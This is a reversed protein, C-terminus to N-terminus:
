FPLNNAQQSFTVLQANRKGAMTAVAIERRRQREAGGGHRGSDAFVSLVKTSTSRGGQVMAM